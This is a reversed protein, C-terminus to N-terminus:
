GVEQLGALQEAIDGVFLEIEDAGTVPGGAVLGDAGLLIAEPSQRLGLARRALGQHDYLVRTTSGGLPLREARLTSLVSVDVAPLRDQWGAVSTVARDSSGCHCTVSVLLQARRAALEHLTRPEGDADLVVVTPIPTREYDDGAGDADPENGADPPGAPDRQDRAADQARAAHAPAEAAPEADLRTAPEGWSAVLERLSVDGVTLPALEVGGRGVLLGTPTGTGHLALVNGAPDLLAGDRVAPSGWGDLQDASRDHVVVRFRVGPARSRLEDLEAILRECPGCGRSVLLLLTKEDPLAWSHVPQRSAADLLTFSPVRGGHGAVGPAAPGASRSAGRGLVLVAVAGTLAAMASWGLLGAPDALLAAPLSVGGAAALLALLATGVLLGNRLLTRLSVSDDGLAGFCNCSVEEDFRLARAIVLLYAVFLGTTAVVGALLLSGASVLLSVGLALEAWPLVAPAPSASLWRPLRLATFADRTAVPDRVKAVGSLLLVAACLLIPVVLFVPM